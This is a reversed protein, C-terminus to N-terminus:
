QTVCSQKFMIIDRRYIQVYLKVYGCGAGTEGPNAAKRWRIKNNRGGIPRDVHRCDLGARRRISKMCRVEPRRDLTHRWSASTQKSQHNRLYRWRHRKYVRYYSTTWVFSYKPAWVRHKQEGGHLYSDSRLTFGLNTVSYMKGCSYTM